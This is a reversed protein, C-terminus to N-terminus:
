VVLRTYVFAPVPTELRFFFVEEGPPSLLCYPPRGGSSRVTGRIAPLPVPDVENNRFVFRWRKTPKRPLPSRAPVSATGIMGALLSQRAPCCLPIPTYANRFSAGEAALRDLNPTLVPYDNSYGITDYRHQDSLIFLINPKKNEL